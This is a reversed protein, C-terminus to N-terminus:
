IQSFNNDAERLPSSTWRNIHFLNSFASHIYQLLRIYFDSDCFSAGQSQMYSSCHDTLHMRLFHKKENRCVLWSGTYLVSVRDGHHIATHTCLHYATCFVNLGVESNEM